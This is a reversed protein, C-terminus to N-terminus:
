AARGSDGGLPSPPTLYRTVFHIVNFCKLRRRTPQLQLFDSAWGLLVTHRAPELIAAEAAAFEESDWARWPEGQRAKRHPRREHM